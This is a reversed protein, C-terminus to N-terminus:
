LATHAVQVPTVRGRVVLLGRGTVGGDARPARVGLLDGDVPGLAGLLLGTRGRRAEVTLGRFQGALDRRRGPSCCSDGRGRRRGQLMGLLPREVPTDHLTEADDALVVLDPRELLLRDLELADASGVVALVGPEGALARLPSRRHAVVAVERGQGLLWRGMTALATSRGSGAPGAVVFAPGDLALDVGLPTSTTAASAWSRGAVPRHRGGQGRGRRRCGGGPRCPARGADAAPRRPRAPRRVAGPGCRRVAEVARVQGAGSTDPDLVALQAEARGAGGAGARAAHAPM